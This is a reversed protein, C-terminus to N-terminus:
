NEIVFHKLLDNVFGMGDDLVQHLQDLSIIDGSLGAAWNVSLALAAYSIGLERALAAEPMGTMGVMDCDDQKLRNIEAATELRPGQTCGYVGTNMVFRQAHEDKKIANASSLILQRLEESYPSTFDTHIVEKLNEEYFTSERGTTYDILQDPVAFSGPALNKHIGGVANISVIQSVGLHMLAWINARYNIKHPPIVQDKGHRPLLALRASEIQFIGVTVGHKSYPTEVIEEGVPEFCDIRSLGTGGIIALM